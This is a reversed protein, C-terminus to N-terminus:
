AQPRTPSQPHAQWNCGGGVGLGPAPPKTPSIVPSLLLPIFSPNTYPPSSVKNDCINRPKCKLNTKTRRVCVGRWFSADLHAGIPVPTLYMRLVRVGRKSRCPCEHACISLGWPPWVDPRQGGRSGKVLGM